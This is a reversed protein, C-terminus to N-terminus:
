KKMLADFAASFGSFSLPVTVDHGGVDAFTLKGVGSATRLKKM